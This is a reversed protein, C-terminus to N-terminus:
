LEASPHNLKHRTQSSKSEYHGTIEVLGIIENLFRAHTRQRPDRLPLRSCAQVAPHIANGLVNPEIAHACTLHAPHADAKLRGLPNRSAVPAIDDFATETECSDARGHGLKWLILTYEDGEHADIAPRVLLRCFNGPGRDARYHAAK